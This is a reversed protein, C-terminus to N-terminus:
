FCGLQCRTIKIQALDLARGVLELPVGLEAALQHARECSLRGEEAERQVAETVERPIEEPMKGGGLIAAALDAAKSLARDRGEDDTFILVKGAGTSEKMSAELRLEDGDAFAEGLEVLVLDAGPAAERVGPELADLPADTFFVVFATSLGRFPENTDLVLVEAQDALGCDVLWREIQAGTAAEEKEDGRELALLMSGELRSQVFEALALRGQTGSVKVIKM